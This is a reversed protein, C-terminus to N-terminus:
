TRWFHRDGSEGHKRHHLTPTTMAQVPRRVLKVPLLRLLQLLPSAPDLRVLRTRRLLNMVAGTRFFFFSFLPQFWRSNSLNQPLSLISEVVFIDLLLFFFCEFRIKKKLERSHHRDQEQRLTKDVQEVVVKGVLQVELQPRRQLRHLHQLNQIM